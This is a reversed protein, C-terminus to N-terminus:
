DNPELGVDRILNAYNNDLWDIVEKNYHDCNLIARLIGKKEEDNINSFYNIFGKADDQYLRSQEISLGGIKKNWLDKAFREITTLDNLTLGSKNVKYGQEALIDIAGCVDGELKSLGILNSIESHRNKTGKYKLREKLKTFINSYTSSMDPKVLKKVIRVDEEGVYRITKDDFFFDGWEKYSSICYGSDALVDLAKCVDGKLELLELLRKIQGSSGGTNSCYRMEVIKYDFRNRLKEFINLFKKVDSNALYKILSLDYRYNSIKYGCHGLARIAGYVDSNSSNEALHKIFKIDDEGLYKITKDIFFDGWKIYDDLDYNNDALADLTDCVNDLKSLELLRGVQNEPGGVYSRDRVNVNNYGFRKRLKSFVGVIKKTDGDEALKRILEVDSRGIYRVTTNFLDGWKTYNSLPYDIDTLIGLVDYINGVESLKIINEIQDSPSSNSDFHEVDVTKYGFHKKLKNFVNLFKKIDCGGKALKLITDMDGAGIYRLTTDFLEGYRRYYSLAYDTDALADLVDCINNIKSLKLIKEIQGNSGGQVSNMDDKYNFRKKLKNFVNLFKKVDYGEFKKVLNIDDDRLHRITGVSTDVDREIKYLTYGTYALADLINCVDGELESLKLIKKIQNVSGDITYFREDTIKYSFRKRLKDFIDLFRNLDSRILRDATDQPLKKIKLRKLVDRYRENSRNVIAELKICRRM